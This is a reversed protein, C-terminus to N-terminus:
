KKLSDLAKQWAEVTAYDTNKNFALYLDSRLVFVVPQLDDPNVGAKAAVINIGERTGMWLDAQGSMLKKLGDVSTDTYVFNIFGQDALKLQGAEDKVVAIKEVAKAEDLSSVRLDSGKKVYLWNEYSGIPGVWMFLHEREPSRAMSFLGTGPNSLTLDYAQAWLMVEIPINNGLKVMAAKVIDASSGVVSGKADVYNFPAYDEALIRVKEPAPAPGGCATFIFVGTLLVALLKRM